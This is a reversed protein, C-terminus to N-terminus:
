RYSKLPERRLEGCNECARYGKLGHLVRIFFKDLMHVSIPWELRPPRTYM